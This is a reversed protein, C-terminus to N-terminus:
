DSFDPFKIKMTLGSFKVKFTRLTGDPLNFTFWLRVRRPKDLKETPNPRLAYRYYFTLESGSPKMISYPKGLVTEVDQRTPIKFSEPNKQKDWTSSLSRQQKNVSGKGVSRLSTTVFERKIISTLKQPYAAKYLKGDEFFLTQSIDFDGEERTNGLLQKEFIYQWLAYPGSNTQITPKAKALWNIDKMLMVPELFTLSLENQDEVQFYRDFDKMQRKVKLLRLFICGNLTLLLGIILAIYLVSRYRQM